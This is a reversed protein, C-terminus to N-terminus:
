KCRSVAASAPDTNLASADLHIQSDLVATARDPFIARLVKNRM